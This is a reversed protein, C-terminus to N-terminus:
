AYEENQPIETSFLATCDNTNTKRPSKKKKKDKGKEGRDYTQKENTKSSWYFESVHVNSPIYEVTKLESATM